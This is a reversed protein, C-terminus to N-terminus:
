RHGRVQTVPHILFHSLGRSRIQYNGWDFFSKIDSNAPHAEPRGTIAAKDMFRIQRSDFTNIPAMVNQAIRRKKRLALGKYCIASSNLSHERTSVEGYCDLIALLVKLCAHTM